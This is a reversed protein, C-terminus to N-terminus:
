SGIDITEIKEIWEKNIPSFFILGLDVDMEKPSFKPNALWYSWAQATERILNPLEGNPFGFPHAAAFVKEGPVSLTVLTAEGYESLVKKYDDGILKQAAHMDFESGWRLYYNFSDVLGSRSITAHVQKERRGSSENEGLDQLVQDIRNKAQPWQPHGSLKKELYKKRDDASLIQLGRQRVSKIDEEDFRSGHYAAVSQMYLWEKTKREFIDRTCIKSFLSETADGFYGPKDAKIIAEPNTGIIPSLHKSLSPGWENINDFDFTIM